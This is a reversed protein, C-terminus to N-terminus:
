RGQVIQHDLNGGWGQNSADTCISKSIKMRLFFRGKFINAEQLWWKLHNVLHQSKPIQMELDGSVAKWWYFLHLQTPRMYLRAYLIVEICSAMLGLMQLYQRATGSCVMMGREVVKLKSIREITPLVKGNDLLLRGGIYTINQSPALKFHETKLYQNLPKLNIVVRIDGTKQPVLFLTSYFGLHEEAIPVPEIAAKELSKEM